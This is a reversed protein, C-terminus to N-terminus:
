TKKTHRRITMQQTTSKIMKQNHQQGLEKVKDLSLSKTQQKETRKKKKRSTNRSLNTIRIKMSFAKGFFEIYNSTTIIDTELINNKIKLVLKKKAYSNEVYWIFCQVRIKKFRVKKRLNQYLQKIQVDLTNLTPHMDKGYNMHVRANKKFIQFRNQIHYVSM